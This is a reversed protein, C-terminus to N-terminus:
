ATCTTYHGCPKGDYSITRTTNDWYGKLKLVQSSLKNSIAIRLYDDFASVTWHRWCSVGDELGFVDEDDRVDVGVCTADRNRKKFPEFSDIVDGPSSKLEAIFFLVRFHEKTIVM